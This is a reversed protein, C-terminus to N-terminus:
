YVSMKGSGEAEEVIKRTAIEIAEDMLSVHNEREWLIPLPAFLRRTHKNIIVMQPNQTLIVRLTSATSAPLPSSSTPYEIQDAELAINQILRQQEQSHTLM